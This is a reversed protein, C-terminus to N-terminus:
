RAGEERQPQVNLSWDYDLVKLTPKQRRISQALALNLYPEIVPLLTNVELSGKPVFDKAYWKLVKSVWLVRNAADLRLGRSPDALFQKVQDTLQEDLREPVYAESRLTPCSTSACVVAFHIRWDGFARGKAEIENLTLSQGAVQYRIGDFFGKIDKVSKLPYHTLVGKVVCANYANIWFALQADQSPLRAPDLLALGALFADLVGHDQQLGRYDVRGSAVASHLLSDWASYSASEHADVLQSSGCWLLFGVFITVTRSRLM